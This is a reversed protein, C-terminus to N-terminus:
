GVDTGFITRLLITLSLHAMERNIAIVGTASVTRHWDAVAAELAETIQSALGLVASHTFSPQILRRQRRWLAGESTALGSGLAPQMKAYSPGKPYNSANRVLVHHIHDPHALIHAVFPGLRFRVVDGYTRWNEVFFAVQGRRQLDLVSGLLPVGAPGPARGRSPARRMREDNPSPKGTRRGMM